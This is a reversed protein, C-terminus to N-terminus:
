LAIGIKSAAGASCCLTMGVSIRGFLFVVACPRREPAFAELTPWLTDVVREVEGQARVIDDVQASSADMSIEIWERTWWITTGSSPEHVTALGHSWNGDVRALKGRVGPLGPLEHRPRKTKASKM